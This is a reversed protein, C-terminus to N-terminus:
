VTRRVYLHSPHKYDSPFRLTCGLNVTACLVEEYGYNPIGYKLLQETFELPVALPENDCLYELVDDCLDCLGKYKSSLKVVCGLHESV